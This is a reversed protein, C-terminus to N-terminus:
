PTLSKLLETYGAIENEYFLRTPRMLQHRRSKLQEVAVDGLENKLHEEFDLPKGRGWINCGVCQPRCNNEDWRTALYARSVFHGCQLTKGKTKCTYCEKAYKARIFLSFIRDLEKKMKSLSVKGRATKLRGRPKRSTKVVVIGKSSM